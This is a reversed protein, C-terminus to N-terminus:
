VAPAHTISRHRSSGGTTQSTIADATALIAAALSSGAGGGRGSPLSAPLGLRQIRLPGARVVGTADQDVDSILPWPGRLNMTSVPALREASAGPTPLAQCQWVYGAAHDLGVSYSARRHKRGHVDFAQAGAIEDQRRRSKGHQRAVNEAASVAEETDCPQRIHAEVHVEASVADPNARRVALPSGTVEDCDTCGQPMASQQEDIAVDAANWRLHDDVGARFARHPVQLKPSGDHCPGALFHFELRRHTTRRPVDTFARIEIRRGNRDARRPQCCRGTVKASRCTNSTHSSVPSGASTTPMSTSPVSSRNM